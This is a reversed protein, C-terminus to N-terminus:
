TVRQRLLPMVQTHAALSLWINAISRWEVLFDGLARPGRFWLQLPHSHKLVRVVNQTASMGQLYTIVLLLQSIGITVDGSLGWMRLKPRGKGLAAELVQKDLVCDAEAIKRRWNEKNRFTAKAYSDLITAWRM